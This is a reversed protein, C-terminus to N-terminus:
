VIKVGLAQDFEQHRRLADYERKYRVFGPDALTYGNDCAIAYALRRFEKSCTLSLTMYPGKKLHGLHLMKKITATDLDKHDLMVVNAGFDAFRPRVVVDQGPLPRGRSDMQVNGQRDRSPPTAYSSYVVGFQTKRAFMGKIKLMVPTYSAAERDRHLEEEGHLYNNWEAPDTSVRGAALMKERLQRLWPPLSEEARLLARDVQDGIEEGIKELKDFVRV